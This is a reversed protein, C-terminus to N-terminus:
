APHRKQLETLLFHIDNRLKGINTSIREDTWRERPTESEVEVKIITETKFGRNAYNGSDDFWGCLFSDSLRQMVTMAPGGSKLCVVDGVDFVSSLAAKAVAMAEKVNNSTQNM